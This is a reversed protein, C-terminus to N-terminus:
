QYQELLSQTSSTHESVKQHPYQEDVLDTLAFRKDSRAYSHMNSQFVGRAQIFACIEKSRHSIQATPVILLQDQPILNVVQKHYASWYTLYGDLSYLGHRM